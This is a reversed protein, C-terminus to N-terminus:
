KKKKNVVPQSDIINVVDNNFDNNINNRIDEIRECVDVSNERRPGGIHNELMKAMGSIKDSKQIEKEASNTRNM